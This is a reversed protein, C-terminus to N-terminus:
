SEGLFDSLDNKDCQQHTVSVFTARARREPFVFIRLFLFKM